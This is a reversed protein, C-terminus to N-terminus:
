VRRAGYQNGPSDRPAACSIDTIHGMSAVRTQDIWIRANLQSPKECRRGKLAESSKLPKKWERAGEDEGGLSEKEERARKRRQWTM